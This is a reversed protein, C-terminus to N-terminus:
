LLAATEEILRPVVRDWGGHLRAGAARTHGGGGYRRALDAVDIERKSRFNARVVGEPEETLLLTVETTHLRAAENVLDETMSDNAGTAEFDAARLKMVALRGDAHLELNTLVRAILRLKAPPDQQYLTQHIRGPDAGAAVLDAALRLTREDTNSFRFWGTDTAIGTFLAEAMYRNLPVGAAAIWQAVILAAASATEDFYRLDGERTGIPDRTAHHDLVLTRPARSLYEAIPELQALACTDVIIVADCADTAAERSEEWLCWDFADTKLYSFKPPLPEYLMPIPNCGRHRLATTLAAMSGLADGDPRRHSIVLPQHSESLWSTVSDFDYTETM